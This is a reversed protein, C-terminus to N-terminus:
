SKRAQLLGAALDTVVWEEAIKEDEFRTVLM